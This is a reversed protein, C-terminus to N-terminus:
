GLGVRHGAGPRGHGPPRRAHARALGGGEPTVEATVGAPVREALWARFAADVQRPRQDPVLRFAVKFGATAPVITKIGPGGYGGHLGVVEATPRM